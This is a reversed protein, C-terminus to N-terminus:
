LRLFDNVKNIVYYFIFGITAVCIGKLSALREFIASTQFFYNEILLILMFPLVVICFFGFLKMTFLFIKGSILFLMKQKQDDGLITSKMVMLSEKLLKHLKNTNNLIPLLDFLLASLLSIIFILTFAM